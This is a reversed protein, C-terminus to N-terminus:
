LGGVSLKYSSIIAGRHVCKSLCELGKMLCETHAGQDMNLSWMHDLISLANHIM